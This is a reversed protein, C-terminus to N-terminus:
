LGSLISKMEKILEKSSASTVSKVGKSIAWELFSKDMIETAQVIIGFYIPPEELSPVRHYKHLPNICFKLNIRALANWMGHVAISFPTYSLNYIDICDAEKAMNRVNKTTWNGVNVPLFETLLQSNIWNKREDIKESKNAFESDSKDMRIKLHELLLKEQGLGYEIFNNYDEEKGKKILWVLTIHTDVMCRLIIRGLDLAWLIDNSIIVSALRAQRAILGGM